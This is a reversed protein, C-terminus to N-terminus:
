DITSYVRITLYFAKRFTHTFNPFESCRKDENFIIYKLDVFTPTFVRFSSILHFLFSPTEDTDSLSRTYSSLIM